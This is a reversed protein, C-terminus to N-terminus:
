DRTSQRRRARQQRKRRPTLRSVSKRFRVKAFTVFLRIHGFPCCYVGEAKSIRRTFAAMKWADSESAAWKPLVLCRIRHEAGYNRARRSHLTMSRAVTPNAWAWMWTGSAASYSGVVQASARGTYGPLHFVLQRRKQDFEWRVPGDSKLMAQYATNKRCLEKLSSELLRAFGRSERL